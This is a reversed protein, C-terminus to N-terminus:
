TLIEKHTNKMAGFAVAAYAENLLRKATRMASDHDLGDAERLEMAIWDLLPTETSRTSQIPRDHITSAAPLTPKAEELVAIDCTIM